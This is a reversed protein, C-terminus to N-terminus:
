YALRAQTEGPLPSKFLICIQGPPDPFSPVGRFENQSRIRQISRLLRPQEFGRLVGEIVRQKAPSGQQLQWAVVQLWSEEPEKGDAFAAAAFAAAKYVKDQSFHVPPLSSM